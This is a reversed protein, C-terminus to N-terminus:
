GKSVKERRPSSMHDISKSSESSEKPKKNQAAYGKSTM